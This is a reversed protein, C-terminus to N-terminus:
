PKVQAASKPIFEITVAAVSHPSLAIDLAIDLVNKPKIM